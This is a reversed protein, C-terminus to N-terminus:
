WLPYSMTDSVQQAGINITMLCKVCTYMRGKGSMVKRCQVCVLVMEYNKKHKVIFQRLKGGIAAPM